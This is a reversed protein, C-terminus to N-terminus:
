PCTVDRESFMDRALHLDTAAFKLVRVVWSRLLFYKWQTQPTTRNNHRFPLLSAWFYINTMVAFFNYFSTCVTKSIQCTSTYHTFINQLKYSIKLRGLEANITVKWNDWIRASQMSVQEQHTKEIDFLLRDAKWIFTSFYIILQFLFFSSPFM